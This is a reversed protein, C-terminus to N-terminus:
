YMPIKGLVIEMLELVLKVKAILDGVIYKELNQLQLSTAGSEYSKINSLIMKPIMKDESDNRGAYNEDMDSYYWAYLDGNETLATYGAQSFQIKTIQGSIHEINKVEEPTYHTM